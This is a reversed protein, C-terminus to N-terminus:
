TGPKAGSGIGSAKNVGLHLNNQAFYFPKFFTGESPTWRVIRGPIRGPAAVGSVSLDYM